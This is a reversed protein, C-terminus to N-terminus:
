EQLLRDTLVIELPQHGVGRDRVEAEDADADEREGRLGAGARHEVHDVVPERGTREEQADAEQDGAAAGAVDVTVVGTRELLSAAAHASTIMIRAGSVM